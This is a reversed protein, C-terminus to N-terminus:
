QGCVLILSQSFVVKCFHILICGDHFPPSKAKLIRCLQKDQGTMLCVKAQPLVGGPCFRNWLLVNVPSTDMTPRGKVLSFRSFNHAFRSQALSSSISNVIVFALRAVTWLRRLVLGPQSKSVVPFLSVIVRAPGVLLDQAFRACCFMIVDVTAGGKPYQIRLTGNMRSHGGYRSCKNGRM